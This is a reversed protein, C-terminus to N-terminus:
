EHREGPPLMPLLHPKKAYADFIAAAQEPSMGRAVYRRVARPRLAAWADPDRGAAHMAKLMSQPTDPPSDDDLRRRARPKRYHEPM